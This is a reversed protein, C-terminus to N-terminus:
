REQEATARGSFRVFSALSAYRILFATLEGDVPAFLTEFYHSLILMEDHKEGSKRLAGGAVQSLEEAEFEGPAWIQAARPLEGNSDLAESIKRPTAKIDASRENRVSSPSPPTAFPPPRSERPMHAGEHIGRAQETRTASGASIFSAGTSTSAGGRLGSNVSAETRSTREGASDQLGLLQSASVPLRGGAGPSDQLSLLVHTVELAERLLEDDSALRLTRRQEALGGGAASEHGLTNSGAGAGTGASPIGEAMSHGALGSSGADTSTQKSTPSVLATLVRKKGAEAAVAAAQGQPEEGGETRSSERVPAPRGELEALFEELDQRCSAGRCEM